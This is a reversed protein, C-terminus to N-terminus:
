TQVCGICVNNAGKYLEIDLWGDNKEAYFEIFDSPNFVEDAEGEIFIPIQVGRGYLQINKPNITNM